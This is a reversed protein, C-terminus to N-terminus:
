GQTHPEAFYPFADLFPRDNAPPNLPLDALTTVTHVELDLLLLALTLDIVPDQPRRGNPFGADASPDIKLTDPVVLPAAQTVCDAPACPTLGAATISADIAAHLGNVSATIDDVFLGDADDVPDISNYEDRRATPIVAASVAPMGYRDTRTYATPPDTAFVFDGGGTTTDATDAGDDDEDDTNCALLVASSLLLAIALRM